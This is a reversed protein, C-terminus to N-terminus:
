GGRKRNMYDLISKQLVKKQIPGAVEMERDFLQRHIREDPRESNYQKLARMLSSKQEVKQPFDFFRSHQKFIPPAEGYSLAMGTPVGSTFTKKDELAKLGQLLSKAKPHKLLSIEKGPLKRNDPHERYDM